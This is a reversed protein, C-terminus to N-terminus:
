GEAPETQPITGEPKPKPKKKVAKVGYWAVNDVPTGNEIRTIRLGMYESSAEGLTEAIQRVVTACDKESSLSECFAKAVDLSTPGSFIKLLVEDQSMVGSVAHGAFTEQMWPSESDM